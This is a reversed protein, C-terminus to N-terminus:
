PPPPHKSDPCFSYASSCSPRYQSILKNYQHQHHHHQHYHQHLHYQCHPCHHNHQRHNHCCHYHLSYQHFNITRSYNKLRTTPTTHHHHQQLFKSQNQPRALPYSQSNPILPLFKQSTETQYRQRSVHKHCCTHPTTIQHPNKSKKSKKSKKSNNSSTSTNMHHLHGSTHTLTHSTTTRVNTLISIQTTSSIIAQTTSPSPPPNM